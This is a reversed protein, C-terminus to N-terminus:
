GLPPARAPVAARYSAAVPPSSPVDVRVFAAQPAHPAPAADAEVAAAPAHIRPASVAAAAPCCESVGAAPTKGKPVHCCAHADGTPSAWAGVRGACLTLAIAALAALLRPPM